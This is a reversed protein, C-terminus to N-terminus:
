VRYQPQVNASNPLQFAQAQQPQQQQQMQMQPSYPQAYVPQNGYIPVAQVQAIQGSPMQVYMTQPQANNPLPMAQVPMAFAQQQNPDSYPQNAVMMGGPVPANRQRSCCCMRCLQIFIFFGGIGALTAGAAGASGKKWKSEICFGHSTAATCQCDYDVSDYNCSKMICNDPCTLDEDQRASTISTGVIFLIVMIASLIAMGRTAAWVYKWGASSCDTGTCCQETVCM